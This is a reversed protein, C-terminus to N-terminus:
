AQKKFAEVVLQMFQVIALILSGFALSGMHYRFVMKYSRLIPSDLEQGPGHAYYWMACASAIVFIGM